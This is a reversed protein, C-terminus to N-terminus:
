RRSARGLIVRRASRCLPAAIGPRGSMRRTYVEPVTAPMTRNLGRQMRIVAEARNGLYFEEKM